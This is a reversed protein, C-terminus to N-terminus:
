RLGDRLISMAETIRQWWGEDLSTLVDLLTVTRGDWLAAAAQLIRRQGGSWGEDLIARYDIGAPSVHAWIRADDAPFGDLIEMAARWYPDTAWDAPLGPRSTPEPFTM